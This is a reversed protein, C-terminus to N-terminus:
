ELVEMEKGTYRWLDELSGHDTILKDARSMSIEPFMTNDKVVYENLFMETEFEEWERLMGPTLLAEITPKM